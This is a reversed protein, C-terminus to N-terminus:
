YHKYIKRLKDLKEQSIKIKELIKNDSEGVKIWILINELSYMCLGTANQAKKHASKM